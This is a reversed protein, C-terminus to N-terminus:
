VFSVLPSCCHGRVIEWRLEHQLLEDLAKLHGLADVDRGFEADSVQEFVARARALFQRLDRAGMGGREVADQAQEGGDIEQGLPLGV